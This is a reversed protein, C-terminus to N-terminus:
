AYYIWDLIDTYQASKRNVLYYLLLYYLLCRQWAKEFQLYTEKKKCSKDMENGPSVKSKNLIRRRRRRNEKQENFKIENQPRPTQLCSKWFPSTRSFLSSCISICSFRWKIKKSHQCFFMSSAQDRPLGKVTKSYSFDNILLNIQTWFHPNVFKTARFSHFNQDPTSLSPFYLIPSYALSLRSQSTNRFILEKEPYGVHQSLLWPYSSSDFSQSFFRIKIRNRKRQFLLFCLGVRFYLDIKLFYSLAALGATFIFWYILPIEWVTHVM